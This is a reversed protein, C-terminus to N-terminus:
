PFARANSSPRPTRMRVGICLWPNRGPPRRSGKGKQERPILPKCVLKPSPQRSRHNHLFESSRPLFCQLPFCFLSLPLFCAALPGTDPPHFTRRYKTFWTLAWLPKAGGVHVTSFYYDVVRPKSASRIAKTNPTHTPQPRPRRPPRTPAPFIDSVRAPCSNLFCLSGAGHSALSNENPPYQRLSKSPLRNSEHKRSM